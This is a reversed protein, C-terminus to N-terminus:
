IKNTSSHIIDFNKKYIKEYLKQHLKGVRSYSFRNVASDRANKKLNISKVKLTWIIGKALDNIDFPKALYGTKKHLVTTKLGSTNFAVVPTGCAQAETATQAFSEFRSPVVLLNAASYAIRLSVDDHLHGLYIIPFKLKPPNIPKSQGFVVLCINNVKKSDYIKKIASELLDFGKHFYSTGAVAGFLVIPLNTPLNFANRAIKKDMPKWIDIDLPNPIQTVNWDKMLFSDKVAKEMWRSPAILHIPKKWYKIKRKWTWLNLDFGSETKPRNKKKYGEKWRKDYSIHEAGCFGWMDHLTWVIPKKIKPIESISIMEHQFWHLHIVDADSKNIKKIWRSSFIQPSHLSPNNTKLLKTLFRAILIKIIKLVKFYKGATSFVNSDDGVKDNVWIKSNINNDLLSEHIRTAARAAGGIQNSNSIHIINM